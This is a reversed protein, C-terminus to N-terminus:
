RSQERLRRCLELMARGNHYPCKWFGAKYMNYGERQDPKALWHWEGVLPDRVHKKIFAWLRTAADLFERDGSLQYANFFGVLSEAQVWWVREKVKSATEFDYIDLVSGDPCVGESLCVEAMKMVPEKFVAELSVDGLIEVAEWLLWSSEIDHGYSYAMSEDDGSKSLFMRLHYNEANVFLTQYVLLLKHLSRGVQPDKSVAFLSTFAEVIHLHTNMTKPSSLDKASLRIDGVEGWDRSFAEYYAGDDEDLGHKEILNFLTKAYDLVKQSQSLKYYSCFAYIAFAQAYIQKRGNICRGNKDLEWFVGGHHTDVFHQCIYSYAREAAAAYRQDNLYLAAESFFWLIRTYLIIGRTSNEQALGEHSIEGHFGDRGDSTKRLWWNAIDRLEAEFEAVNLGAINTESDQIM